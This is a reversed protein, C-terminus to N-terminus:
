NLVWRSLQLFHSDNLGSYKTMVCPVEAIAYGIQESDYMSGLCRQTTDLQRNMAQQMQQQKLGYGRLAATDDEYPPPDRSEFKSGYRSDTVGSRARTSLIDDDDMFPNKGNSFAM